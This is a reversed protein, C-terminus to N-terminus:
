AVSSDDGKSSIGALVALLGGGADITADISPEPKGDLRNGIESIADKDGGLAM